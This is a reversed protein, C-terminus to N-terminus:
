TSINDGPNELLNLFMPMHNDEDDQNHQYEKSYILHFGCEKVKITGFGHFSATFHTWENSRYKEKISDKPYYIVWM